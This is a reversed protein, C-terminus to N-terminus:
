VQLADPYDLNRCNFDYKALAYHPLAPLTSNRGVEDLQIVNLPVLGHKM